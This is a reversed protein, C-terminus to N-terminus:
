RKKKNHFINMSIHVAFADKEDTGFKNDTITKGTMQGILNVAAEASQDLGCCKGDEPYISSPGVGEFVMKVPIPSTDADCYAYLLALCGGASGGSMARRDIYHGLKKAEEIVYPISEKIEISQTYFAPNFSPKL